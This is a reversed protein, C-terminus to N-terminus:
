PEQKVDERLAMEAEGRIRMLPTRLDHAIDDTVERLERFLVQIRDVMLNFAAALEDLEDQRHSVPVRHEWAGAAIQGAAITLRQVGALARRGMYAGALFSCFIFAT